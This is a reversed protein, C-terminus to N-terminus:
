PPSPRCGCLRSAVHSGLAERFSSQPPSSAMPPQRLDGSPSLETCWIRWKHDPSSLAAKSWIGSCVWSQTGPLTAQPVPGESGLATCLRDRPPGPQEHDCCLSSPVRPQRPELPVHAKGRQLLVAARLCFPPLYLSVSSLDISRILRTPLCIISPQYM